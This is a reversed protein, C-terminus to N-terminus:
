DIVVKSVEDPDRVCGKDVVTESLLAAETESVGVKDTLDPVGDPVSVKESV